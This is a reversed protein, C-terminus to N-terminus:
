GLTRDEKEQQIAHWLEFLANIAVQALHYCGGDKENVALPNLQADKHHRMRAAQFRRSFDEGFDRKWNEFGYRECGLKLVPILPEILELDLLSWDLKDKDHKTGESM